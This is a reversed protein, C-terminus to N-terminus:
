LLRKARATAERVHYHWVLNQDLWMGLYRIVGVTPIRGSTLGIQFKQTIQVRPGSFCIATCKQPNFQLRWQQAWSDVTKMAQILELAALVQVTTVGTGPLCMMQMRKASWGWTCWNMWYATLIFLFCLQPCHPIGTTTRM